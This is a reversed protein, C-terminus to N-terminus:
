RKAKEGPTIKTQTKLKAYEETSMGYRSAMKLEDPTLKVSTRTGKEPGGKPTVVTHLEKAEEFTEKEGEEKGEKKAEEKIKEIDELSEAKAIKYAMKIMESDARKSLPLKEMWEDVKDEHEEFDKFEKRFLRKVKEEKKMQQYYYHGARDVMAATTLTPDTEFQERLKLLPDTGEPFKESSLEEKNEVKLKQLEEHKRRWKAATDQWGKESTKLKEVEQKLEEVTPEQVQEEKQETSLQQEEEM